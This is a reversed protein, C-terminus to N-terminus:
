HLTVALKPPVAKYSQENLNPQMACGVKVSYCNLNFEYCICLHMRILNWVSRKSKIFGSGTSVAGDLEWSIM